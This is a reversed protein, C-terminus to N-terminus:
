RRRDAIAQELERLVRMAGASLPPAAADSRSPPPEATDASAHRGTLRRLMARVFIGGHRLTQTYRWSRSGWLLELEQRVAAGAAVSENLAARADALQAQLTQVRYVLRDQQAVLAERVEREQRLLALLEHHVETALRETGSADITGEHRHHDLERLVDALRREVGAYAAQLERVM